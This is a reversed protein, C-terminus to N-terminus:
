KNLTITFQEKTGQKIRVMENRKHVCLPYDANTLIRQTSKGNKYILDYTKKVKKKQEGATKKAPFLSDYHMKQYENM